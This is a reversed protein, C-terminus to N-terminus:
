IRQMADRLDKSFHKDKIEFKATHAVATTFALKLANERNNQTDENSLFKSQAKMFPDLYATVVRHCNKCIDVTQEKFGLVKQAQEGFPHHRDFQADERPCMPCKPIRDANEPAACSACVGDKVAKSRYEGCGCVQRIKM